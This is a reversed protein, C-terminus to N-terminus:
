NMLLVILKTVFLGFYTTSISFAEGKQFIKYTLKPSVSFLIYFKYFKLEIGAHSVLFSIESLLLQFINPVTGGSM